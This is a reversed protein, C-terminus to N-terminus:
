ASKWTSFFVVAVGLLTVASVYGASTFGLFLLALGAAAAFLCGLLFRPHSM